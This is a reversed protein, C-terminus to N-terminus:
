NGNGVFTQVDSSNPEIPSWLMQGAAIRAQWDVPADDISSSGHVVSCIIVLVLYPVFSQLM